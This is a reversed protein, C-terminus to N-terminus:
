LPAYLRKLAPTLANDYGDLQNFSHHKTIKLPIDLVVREVSYYVILPLSSNDDQTLCNRYIDALRTINKLESSQESKFGKRQKVLAWQFNSEQSDVDISIKSYKADNEIDSDLIPSGSGKEREIRAIFWTLLITLARLISTKGAGNNGIFVTVDSSLELTLNTFQTFNEIHLKKIKM